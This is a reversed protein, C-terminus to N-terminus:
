IMGRQTTPAAQRPSSRRGSRSSRVYPRSFGSEQASHATKPFCSAFSHRLVHYGQVVQWRSGEVASRFAKTMMQRTFPSGGQGCITFPSGPHNEDLWARLVRRLVDALPVKRFTMERSRDGKKERITIM